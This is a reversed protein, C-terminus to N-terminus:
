DRGKRPNNLAVKRNIFGKKTEGTRSRKKKEGLWGVMLKMKRRQDKRAKEPPKCHPSSAGPFDKSPSWRRGWLKPPAKKNPIKSSRIRRGGERRIQPKQTRRLRGHGPRRKAREPQLDSKGKKESRRGTTGTSDRREGFDLHLSKKGGKTRQAEVGMKKGGCTEAALGTTADSKKSAFEEKPQLHEEKKTGHAREAHRKGKAWSILRKHRCDRQCKRQKQLGGEDAQGRKGRKVRRSSAVSKSNLFFPSSARPTTCKTTKEKGM